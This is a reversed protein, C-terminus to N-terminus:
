RRKFSVCRYYIKITTPLYHKKKDFNSNIYVAM